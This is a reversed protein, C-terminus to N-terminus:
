RGMEGRVDFMALQRAANGPFACAHGTVDKQIRLPFTALGLQNARGVVWDVNKFFAENFRTPDGDVVTLEGYVNRVNLGRLVYAQIVTFGKAARNQLYEEVEERNLRKFLTWATDGLYFFPKGKQDELYRKNASVKLKLGAVSKGGGQWASVSGPTMCLCLMLLSGCLSKM